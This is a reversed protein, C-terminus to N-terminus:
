KLHVAQGREASELAGMLLKMTGLNSKGSISPERREAIADMLDSMPGLFADPFWKSTPAHEIQTGDKRKLKVTNFDAEISGEDGDVQISMRWAERTEVKNNFTHSAIAGSEFDVVAAYMTPAINVQNRSRRQIAKVRLADSGAFFRLLDFYHIGHDVLTFDPCKVYWTAPDDQWGSMDFRIFEVEGIAGGQIWRKILLHTGAWRAQQNVAYAIKNEDAIRVYEKADFYSHAVPKQLLVNKGAKACLEFAEKRGEIHIAIDIIQVDKRALMEELSNCVNPIAFKEATKAAAEQDLDFCAVINLGAANYAPLHAINVIEGCGLLAIGINKDSPHKPRLESDPVTFDM